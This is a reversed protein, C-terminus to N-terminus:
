DARSPLGRWKLCCSPFSYLLRLAPPHRNSPNSPLQTDMPARGPLVHFSLTRGQCASSYWRSGSLRIVNRVSRTVNGQVTLRVYDSFMSVRSVKRMVATAARADRRKSLHSALIYRTDTDMVNWNWYKQGDVTVQMEDAVWEDGTQAKHNEMERLAVATNDRVWEYITAKSPEPIDYMEVMNEAIQKYSM